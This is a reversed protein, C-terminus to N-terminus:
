PIINLDNLAERLSTFKLKHSQIKFEGDKDILVKAKVHKVRKCKKLKPFLSDNPFEPNLAYIKLQDNSQLAEKILLYIYEDRYAFGISILSSSCKLIKLFVNHLIRFVKGSVEDYSLSYIEKIGPYIVHLVNPDDPRIDGGRVVSGDSKQWDVSGHLKFIYYNFSAKNIEKYIEDEDDVFVFSSKGPKFGLFISVKQELAKELSRDYNTTFIFILEGKKGPTHDLLKSYYNYVTEIGLNHLPTSTKKIIYKKLERRLSHLIWKIKRINELEKLLNDMYREWGDIAKGGLATMGNRSSSVRKLQRVRKDFNKRIVLQTFLYSKLPEFNEVLPLLYEIDLDTMKPKRELINGFNNREIKGNIEKELLDILAIGELLEREENNTPQFDKMFDKSLPFGLPYSAGAGLFYVKANNKLYECDLLINKNKM